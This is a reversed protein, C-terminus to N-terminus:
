VPSYTITLVVTDEVLIMDFTFTFKNEKLELINYEMTLGSEDFTQTLVTEDGTFSWTGPGNFLEYTDCTTKADWIFIGDSNYLVIDDKQCESLADFTDNTYSIINGHEDKIPDAPEGSFATMKWYKGCLLETRSIQEEKKCSILLVFLILSFLTILNRM